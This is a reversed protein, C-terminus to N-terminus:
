SDSFIIEKRKQLEPSTLKCTLNGQKDKTECKEDCFLSPKNNALKNDSTRSCGALIFLALVILFTKEKM